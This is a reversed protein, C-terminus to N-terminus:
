PVEAAAQVLPAARAPDAALAAELREPTLTLLVTFLASAGDPAPADSGQSM